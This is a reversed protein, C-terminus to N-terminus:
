WSFTHENWFGLFAWFTILPFPPSPSYFILITFIARSLRRTDTPLRYGPLSHPLSAPLTAATGLSLCPEAASIARPVPLLLSLDDMLCCHHIRGATVLAALSAWLGPALAQAGALPLPSTTQLCPAAEPPTVGRRRDQFPEQAGPICGQSTLLSVSAQLPSLRM